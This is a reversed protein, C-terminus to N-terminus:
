QAFRSLNKVRGELDKWAARASYRSRVFGALQTLQEETLVDAFGPMVPGAEEREPPIGELIIHILNRPDPANVTTSLALPVAKRAAGHCSACAGAFILRGPEQGDRDGKTSAAPAQSGIRAAAPAKNEPVGMLWAVYRAIARVDAEPVQSLDHVVQAMPGAVVGHLEDRGSRLYNFLQDANWPKPAISRSNIAPGYWGEADGGAFRHRRDEAGLANRPTHCAGCHGLGEVLYAGRNWSEDQSPDPRFAREKFFLAKWLALFPRVNYPFALTNPPAIDRVPERTVIFARIASIDDDSVEAFHDYPFAPYLNRGQADIGERMARSFDARSWKGIGTEPDPTINTSYITGFPTTIARGGAFPKGGQRTHCGLCDGLASLKSGRVILARDFQPQAAPPHEAM